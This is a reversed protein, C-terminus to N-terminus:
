IIQALCYFSSSPILTHKQTSLHGPESLQRFIQSNAHVPLVPKHYANISICLAASEEDIECTDKMNM